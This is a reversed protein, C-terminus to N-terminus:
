LVSVAGTGFVSLWLHAVAQIYELKSLRRFGEYAREVTTVQASPGNASWNSAVDRADIRVAYPNGAVLGELLAVLRTTEFKVVM